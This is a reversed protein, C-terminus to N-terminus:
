GCPGFVQRLSIVVAVDPTRALNGQSRETRFEKALGEPPTERWFEFLQSEGPSLSEVRSQSPPRDGPGQQLASGRHERERGDLPEAFFAISGLRASRARAGRRAARQREGVRAGLFGAPPEPQLHPRTHPYGVRVRVHVARHTTVRLGRLGVRLNRKRLM